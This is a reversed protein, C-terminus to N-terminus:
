PWKSPIWPELGTTTTNPLTLGESEPRLLNTPGTLFSRSIGTQSCFFSRPLILSFCATGRYFRAYLLLLVASIAVKCVRNQRSFFCGFPILLSSAVATSIGGIM